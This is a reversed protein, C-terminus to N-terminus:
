ISSKLPSIQNPNSTRPQSAPLAIKSERKGMVRHKIRAPHYRVPKRAHKARILPYFPSFPNGILYPSGPFWKL